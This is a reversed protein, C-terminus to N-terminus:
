FHRFFFLFFVSSLYPLADYNTERVERWRMNKFDQSRGLELYPSSAVFKMEWVWSRIRCSSGPIEKSYDPCVFVIILINREFYYPSALFMNKFDFYMQLFWWLVIGLFLDLWFLVTLIIEFSWVLCWLAFVAIFLKWSINCVKTM